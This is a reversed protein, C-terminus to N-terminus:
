EKITVMPTTKISNFKQTMNRLADCYKEWKEFETYFKYSGHEDMLDMRKHFGAKDGFTYYTYIILGGPYKEKLVDEAMFELHGICYDEDATVIGNLGGTIGTTYACPYYWFNVDHAIHEKLIRKYETYYTKGDVINPSVKQQMKEIRDKPWKYGDRVEVGYSDYAADTIYKAAETTIKNMEDATAGIDNGEMNSFEGTAFVPFNRLGFVTYNIRSQTLFDENKQDNWIPEDWICGLFLDRLGEKELQEICNRVKEKYREENNKDSNYNGFGVWFTGGSEAVIKASEIFCYNLDLFYTNFYGQEVVERFERLRSKDDVGYSDCWRPSFHFAGLMVNDTKKYRKVESSTTSSIVYDSRLATKKSSTKEEQSEIESEISSTKQSSILAEQESSIIESSSELATIQSSAAKEEGGCSSLTACFTLAALAVALIRKLM